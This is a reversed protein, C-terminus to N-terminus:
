LCREGTPLAGESGAVADIEAQQEQQATAQAQADTLTKEREKRDAINSARIESLFPSEEITQQALEQREQLTLINQNTIRGADESSIILPEALAEREAKLSSSDLEKEQPPINQTLLANDRIEVM